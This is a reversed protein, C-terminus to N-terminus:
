HTTAYQKGVKRITCLESSIKFGRVIRFTSLCYPSLGKVTVGSVRNLADKQADLAIDAVVLFINPRDRCNVLM